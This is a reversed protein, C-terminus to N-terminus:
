CRSSPPKPRSISGGECWRPAATTSRSRRRSRLWSRPPKPTNGAAFCRPPAGSLIPSINRRRPTNTRRTSGNARSHDPTWLLDALGDARANQHAMLLLALAIMAWNLTTGRRFWLLLLLGAPIAMIWGDDQLKGQAAEARALSSALARQVADLDGNDLTSTVTEM